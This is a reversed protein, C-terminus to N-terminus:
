GHNRRKIHNKFMNLNYCIIFLISIINGFHFILPFHYRVTVLHKASDGPLLLHIRSNGEETIPLIPESDVTVQYCNYNIFPLEIYTDKDGLYNFQLTGLGKTYNEIIIHTPDSIIYEASLSDNNSANAPRWEVPYQATLSRNSFVRNFHSQEPVGTEYGLNKIVQTNQWVTMDALTILMLLASITIKVAPNLKSSEIMVCGSIIIFLAAPGVLRWPFQLFSYFSNIPAIHNFIKCFSTSMILLICAIVFLNRFYKERDDNIKSVFLFFFLLFVGILLSLGLSHPRPTTDTIGLGFLYSFSLSSGIYESKLINPNIYASKYYYLFPILFWLNLLLIYLGSKAFTLLVSKQLTKKWYIVILIFTIIVIIVFSLIHSQLIGSMGITFYHLAYKQNHLILYLGVIVLPFFIMAITEGIAARVYINVLRYRLFAYLICGLVITLKSGNLKKISIGLSLITAVQILILLVKYALVFSIGGIRLLAPIYLFLSPYMSNLYGNGNLADPFIVVPFQGSLLGNKIGEIRALHYQLDDGGYAFNTGWFPISSFISLATFLIIFQWTSESLKGNQYFFVLLLSSITFLWLIFVYFYVDNYLRQSPVITIEDICIYGKGSYQITYNVDSSIKQLNFQYELLNDDPTLAFSNIVVGNDTIVFLSGPESVIYQLIGNYQGTNLSLCKNYVDVPADGAYEIVHGNVAETTNPNISIPETSSDAKILLYSLTILIILTLAVKKM